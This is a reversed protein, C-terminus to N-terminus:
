PAYFGIVAVGILITITTAMLWLLRDSNDSIPKRRVRRKPVPRQTPRPATQSAERLERTIAEIANEYSM